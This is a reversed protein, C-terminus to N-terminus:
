SINSHFGTFKNLYKPITCLCCILLFGGIAGFVSGAITGTNSESSKNNKNNTLLVEFKGEDVFTPSVRATVSTYIISLRESGKHYGSVM